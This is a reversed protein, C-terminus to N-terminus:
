SDVLGDAGSSGIAVSSGPAGGSCLYARIGMGHAMSVIGAVYAREAASRGSSLAPNIKIHDIQLSPVAPIRSFYTGADALGLRVGSRRLTRGLDIGFEPDKFVAAEPIDIYIRSAAAPNGALLGTLHALVSGDRLTPESLRMAIGTSSASALELLQEIAAEEIAAIMGTRVAFPAWKGPPHYNDDSGWAIHIEAQQHLLVGSPGNVPKLRCSIQRRALTDKLDQRWDQQGSMEAAANDEGLMAHGTEGAEAAALAADASALLRGAGMGYEIPAAGIALSLRPGDIGAPSLEASLAALRAEDLPNAPLMVAFDSGNLRGCASDRFGAAFGLLRAAMAKLLDDTTRRGLEQNIRLLDRVRIMIFTGTGTVQPNELADALESQFQERNFLGTVTDTTAVHRLREVTAAHEAYQSQVRDVMSNMARTLPKFEPVSPPTSKIFRRESLANAQGILGALPTMTRRVLITGCLGSVLGVLTLLLTLNVAGRWLVGYAFSAYSVVELTGLQQWGSSVQAIGPASQVPLLAIFWAPAEVPHKRDALDIVTKGAPDTLRIRQYHGTDYQAAILLRISDADGAQQSLSIALSAANDHNKIQLQDELYQRNSWLGTFLSGTCTTMTVVIVLLWLQRILSM